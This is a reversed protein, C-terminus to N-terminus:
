RTAGATWRPAGYQYAGLSPTPDTSGDNIGPLPIAANRAPSDASLRYDHTAADVFKPDTDAPLNNSILMGGDTAGALGVIEGINNYLKTGTSQGPGKVYFLTAGGTNNYVLNNRSGSGLGNLMVTKELNNWGVNNAITLNSQGNDAYIGAVAFPNVGPTPTGDHLINHDISTQLMDSACCTYIAATDLSLRAYQSIDNYAIRDPGPTTGAAVDWQLNIGSRGVRYITNHQVTQSNGAVAIGAAYTGLYDADHIVNNSATNHQGRLAIANGASYALNSNVVQNNTGNIVLGTDAVGRTVTSGCDTAGQTIDTYHSLYHANIKDLVVNTSSSGTQVSAGFLTLGTLNTYSSNTLDFALKRRKAELNHAAPNDTSYVYLRKAATDYFWEGPNALEGIKGFLSYRTDKPVVKHTCPPAAALTVSGVASSAVTSTASVYWYGTLARAGNWYGAPRTMGPDVITADASGAGAYALKPTVLDLGPYPWQAEVGMTGDTFVQVTTVDSGLDVATSYVNGASVAQSFPSNAAFPDTKAIAAVDAASVKAWGRVPEAGSLTVKEGPATRYAIPKGATGSNAPKVTERYTGGAIVCTDGAVMVDACRQVHQFAATPAQGNATDHGNTAVYFTRGAASAAPAVALTTVFAAALVAVKRLM